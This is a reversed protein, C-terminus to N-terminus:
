DAEFLDDDFQPPDPLETVDLPPRIGNDQRHANIRRLLERGDESEAFNDLDRNRIAEDAQAFFQRVADRARPSEVPPSQVQRVEIAEPDTENRIYQVEHLDGIMDMYEMEEVLRVMEMTYNWNAVSPKMGHRNLPQFGDMIADNVKEEFRQLDDSRIIKYESVKQNNGM